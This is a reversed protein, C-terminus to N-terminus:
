EQVIVVVVPRKNLRKSLKKQISKKIRGESDEAGIVELEGSAISSRIDNKIEEVLDESIEIGKTIVVPEEVDNDTLTIKCSVIVCGHNAMLKREKMVDETDLLVTGEDVYIEGSQVSSCKKIGSKDVEVCNGIDPLFINGGVIGMDLALDRHLMLHRYEGHM